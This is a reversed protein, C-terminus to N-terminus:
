AAGEAKAIVADIRALDRAWAIAADQDTGDQLQAFGLLERANRLAALMEPATRMLRANARDTVAEVDTAKEDWARSPIVALTDAQETQICTHAGHNSVLPAIVWPGPTHNTAPM